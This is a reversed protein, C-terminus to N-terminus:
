GGSIKLLKACLELLSSPIRLAMSWAMILNCRVTIWRAKKLDHASLAEHYEIRHDDITPKFTNEYTRKQFLFRAFHDIAIGPPRYVKPRGRKGLEAIIESASVGIILISTKISKAAIQGNPEKALELRLKDQEDALDALRKSLFRRRRAAEAALRKLDSEVIVSDKESEYM